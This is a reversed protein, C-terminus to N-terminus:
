RADAKAVLRVATVLLGVILLTYLSVGSWRALWAGAPSTWSPGCATRSAELLMLKACEDYHVYILHRSWVLALAAASVVVLALHILWPWIANRLKSANVAVFANLSGVLAVAWVQEQYATSMRGQMFELLEPSV